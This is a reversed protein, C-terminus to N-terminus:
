MQTGHHRQQQAIMISRKKLNSIQHSQHLYMVSDGEPRTTTILTKVKWYLHVFYHENEKKSILAQNRPSIMGMREIMQRSKLAYHFFQLSESNGGSSECSVPETKTRGFLIPKQGKRRALVEFLADHASRIKECVLLCSKTPAHLSTLANM